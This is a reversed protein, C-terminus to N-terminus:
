KLRQGNALVHGDATVEIKSTLTDPGDGPIAFLGMMMRVGMAQDEPVFGMAVLKDLLGNGGLLRLNLAGEPRPIGDFSVMDTNDFTFAGDGTLDAGAVRVTLANIQAAHIEGPAQTEVMGGMQKENLLDKTLKTQGTVDIAVTAPDRPLQGSPDFSGWLMDAMTFDALTVAIQFDQLEDSAMLPMALKFGAQQMRLSVPLPLDAGSLEVGLGSSMVDYILRGADMAIRFAGGTSTTQGITNNGKEDFEFQMSGGTHTFGGDFGFGAKMAADMDQLDVGEPSKSTSEGSLGLLGGKLYVRGGKGEPVTIDVLYDLAEASFSQQISVMAGKQTVSTGSANTLNIVVPGLTETKGKATVSVLEVSTKAVSYTTSLNDLTGSVVTDMGQNKLTAVVDVPDEGKTDVHVAVPMQEPMMIQVTGNGNDRFSLGGLTVDVTGNNEPMDIHMAINSLTLTDGSQSEDASVTYGYQAMQDKWAGWVEQASIDAFAASGTMCLAMAASTKLSTWHKM